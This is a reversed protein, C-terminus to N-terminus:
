ININHGIRKMQFTSLIEHAVPKPCSVEKEKTLLAVNKKKFEHTLQEFKLSFKNTSM